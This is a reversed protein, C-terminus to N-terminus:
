SQSIRVSSGPVVNLGCPGLVSLRNLPMPTVYVSGSVPTTFRIVGSVVLVSASVDVAFGHVACLRWCQSSIVSDV